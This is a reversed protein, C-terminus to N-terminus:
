PRTSLSTALGLKQAIRQATAERRQTLSETARKAASLVEAPATSPHGSNFLPQPAYEMGLQIQQATPEGRLLSALYLAGDIGATVGAASIIRDDQVVREEVPIAGFFPLLHLARWHTTARVGKLLGAAGCILAGTCVSLLWAGNSYQSRILSLTAEDDMLSEQGPGGPVLLVDLRPAEAFSKEPTLILGRQDRIPKGDASLTHFTSNPLRSLVEFPGTFDIQDMDPFVFGGIALHQDPALPTM